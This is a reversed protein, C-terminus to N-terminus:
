ASVAVISTEGLILARSFLRRILLPRRRYDDM